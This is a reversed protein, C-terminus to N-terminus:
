ALQDCKANKAYADIVSTEQMHLIHKVYPLM